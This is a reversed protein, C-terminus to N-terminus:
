APARVSGIEGGITKLVTIAEDISGVKLVKLRGGAHDVAEQYNRPAVLMYDAGAHRAAATKQAIGDIDGVAGTIFISGSVAVRHGGTLDGSGLADLVGLTLALGGSAGGTKGTNIKVEFPPVGPQPEQGPEPVAIGLRHFAVDVAIERSFVMDNTLQKDFQRQTEKTPPAGIVKQMKLLEVDPDLKGRLAEFITVDKLSVSMLLFTGRHPFARDAPVAILDDVSQASGPEIVFYNVHYTVAVLAVVTLVLLPILFPM